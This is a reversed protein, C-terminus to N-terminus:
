DIIDNEKAYVDDCISTGDQNLFLDQVKKDGAGRLASWIGEYPEWLKEEASKGCGTGEYLRSGEIGPLFLVNSVPPTGWFSLWPSFIVTNDWDYMANGKGTLNRLDHYPGSADGWFNNSVDVSGTGYWEFGFSANQYIENDSITYSSNNSYVSVGIDNNTIENKTVSVSNAPYKLSNYNAIGAGKHFGSIVSDRIDISSGNYIGIADREGNTMTSSVVRVSCEGYLALAEDESHDVFLNEIDATSGLYVGIGAGVNKLTINKLTVDSGHSITIADGSLNKALFNDLSLHSGYADISIHGGEVRTNSVSLDKSYFDTIADWAYQIVANNLSSAVEPNSFEIGGWESGTASTFIIPEDPTGQALLRGLVSVGGVDFQVVVGPGISLTANEEITVGEQILYPSGEKTWVTDESIETDVVTDAFVASPVSLAFAIIIFFLAFYKARM